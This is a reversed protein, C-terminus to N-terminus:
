QDLAQKFSYIYPGLLVCYFMQLDYLKFVWKTELLQSKLQQYFLNFIIIIMCLAQLNLGFLPKVSPAEAIHSAPHSMLLSGQIHEFNAHICVLVTIKYSESM